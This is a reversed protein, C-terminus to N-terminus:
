GAPKLTRRYRLEEVPTGWVEDNRRIGDSKWGMSRYFNEARTNGVLVWLLAEDFGFATLREHVDTILLRGVGHRWHDPDVYLAYLQGSRGDSQSDPTPGYTAFGCIEDDDGVAVMTEGREPGRNHFTYREAREQPKLGNLYDEPLLGAYASQWSRVHVTAVALAESPEAYRLIM